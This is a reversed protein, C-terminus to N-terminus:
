RSQWRSCVPVDFLTWFVSALLPRTRRRPHGTSYIQGNRLGLCIAAGPSDSWLRNISAYFTLVRDYFFKPAYIQGLIKRYGERLSELGMKPIINTSGDMNDGSVEILLRGEQKLRNMCAHGPTAQLLGVMATV